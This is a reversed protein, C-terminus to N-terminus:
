EERAAQPGTAVPWVKLVQKGGASWEFPGPFPSKANRKNGFYDTDLRYPSGDPQLYPLDPIKAKGLLDTTVLPRSAPEAWARDLTIELYLGDPKEILKIGPDFDPRLLPSEESPSPQAENLFVNGKMWSPLGAKDYGDFGRNVLLNNYFRDDGGPINHLGAVATSHAKMFPTDRRLENHFLVGALFLNHAYAGGQSVDLVSHRSQWHTESKGPFRSLCINHDVMFPGHNVEFFLDQSGDNDHLLNRTVRAGQAM